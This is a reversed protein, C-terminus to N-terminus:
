VTKRHTSDVDAGAKGQQEGDGDAPGGPKARLVIVPRTARRGRGLPRKREVARPQTREGTGDRRAHSFRLRVEVLARLEHEGKRGALGGLRKLLCLPTIEIAGPAIPALRPGPARIEVLGHLGGGGRTGEVGNPPRPVVQLVRTGDLARQDVGHGRAVGALVVRVRAFPEVRGVGGGHRVHQTTKRAVEVHGREVGFRQHEQLRPAAAPIDGFRRHPLNM